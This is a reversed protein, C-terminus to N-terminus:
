IIYGCILPYCVQAARTEEHKTDTFNSSTASTASSSCANGTISHLNTAEHSPKITKTLKFKLKRCITAALHERISEAKAIFYRQEILAIHSWHFLIHLSLSIFSNQTLAWPGKISLQGKLGMDSFTEEITYRQILNFLGDSLCFQPLILFVRSLLKELFAKEMIKMSLVVVLPIFGLLVNSSAAVVFSSSGREFLFSLTYMWPIIALSYIFILSLFVAVNERGVFEWSGFALFICVFVFGVLIFTFVDWIFNAFWYVPLRLGTIMQLRKSGSSNESVIFFVITAPLLSLAMLTSFTSGIMIGIRDNPFKIDNMKRIPTFPHNVTVIADRTPVTSLSSSYNRLLMNHLVNMYSVTSVYGKNNYWVKVYKTPPLSEEYFQAVKGVVNSTENLGFIGGFLTGIKASFNRMKFAEM